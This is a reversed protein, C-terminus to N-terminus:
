HSLLTICTLGYVEDIMSYIFIFQREFLHCLHLVNQLYFCTNQYLNVILHTLIIDLHSTSSLSLTLLSIYNHFIYSVLGFAPVATIIMVLTGIQMLLRFGKDENEILKGALDGLAGGLPFLCVLACNMLFNILWASPVGDGGILSSGTFYMIWVFSTYYSCCWFSAVFAVLLLERWNKNMTDLTPNKNVKDDGQNDIAGWVRGGVNKSEMLPNRTEENDAKAVQSSSNKTIFCGFLRNLNSDNARNNGVKIEQETNLLPHTGEVCREKYITSSELPVGEDDDLKSRLWIGIVGFLIGSLFPVRWGWTHLDQKSLYYRLLASVGMGLTTGLNGSAKCMAGWFGRDKGGTAEITYIYAGVLEGGVALGQMLRLIILLITTKLGWVQYSPLCGILFSPLLMLAISVELARKRGVTDGIRGM